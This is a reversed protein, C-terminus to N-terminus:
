IGLNKKELEDEARSLKIGVMTFESIEGPTKKEKKNLHEHVPNYNAAADKWDGGEYAKNGRKILEERAVNETRPDKLADALKDVTTYASVLAEPTEKALKPTM